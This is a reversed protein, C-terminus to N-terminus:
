VGKPLTLDIERLVRASGVGIRKVIAMAQTMTIDLRRVRDIPLYMVNGSMPSPAQPLFVVAWGNELSELVYGIQWGGEISVLVPQIGAANEIQALGETMTKVMQYQPLKDLLTRELWGSLRKGITTRAVIGASFSICVLVLVGIVTVIGIGAFDGMHELHLASTIPQAVTIALRLAQGLIFLVFALPLLFLVGGLVTMKLFKKM